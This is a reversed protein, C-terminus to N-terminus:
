KQLAEAIRLITNWNRTALPAGVLRELQTLYSIAKMQRRYYGILFPGQRSIVRLCWVGGAPFITPIVLHAVARKPMVSVFPIIDRHPVHAGFPDSSVLQAVENGSCIIVDVAFPVRRSMEAKLTSRAIPKRVVFTGAAGISIVDFRRLEKALESPRYRRHGGVNIGKLFVVIAM